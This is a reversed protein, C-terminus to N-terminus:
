TENTIKKALDFEKTIEFEYHWSANAGCALELSVGNGRFCIATVMREQQFKDTVLYVIEGIEYKSSLVM